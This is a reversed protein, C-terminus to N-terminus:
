LNAFFEKLDTVVIAKDQEKLAKQYSKEVMESAQYTPYISDKVDTIVLHRLYASLSLGFQSAKSRALGYLETPLTVKIQSSPSLTKVQM